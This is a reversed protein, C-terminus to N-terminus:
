EDDPLSNLLLLGKYARHTTGGIKKRDQEYGKAILARGLAPQLKPTHGGDKCWAEYSKYLTPVTVVGDPSKTACQELWQQVIDLEDRHKQTSDKVQVPTVLGKPSNYWRRAGEVAWALIGILNNPTVMRTKLGKDEEGLHSNPFRIVRLRGWFADDDVDGKIAHNSSLWIKFKPTFTFQDRHKFAATIPDNGTINKVVAENLQTYQGSESASIYRAARLPALDFNQSDGDRKATFTNFSVGRALPQGLLALMANESTGKGSRAKGHNYFAIEESTRGTISYGKAEQYWGGIKDYDEISSALFDLWPRSEAGAIYPIPVCYTFKNSAEHTILQGTRLDVVGNACNLVDPDSDFDSIRCVVLDRLMDVVANKRSSSPISSKWMGDNDVTTAFTQRLRLTDTVTRKVDFEANEAEFHTGVNRMWGHTPAFTFKHPNLRLVVLAHGADDVPTVQLLDKTEPPIVKSIAQLQQTASSETGIGKEPVYDPAQEALQMLADATGGSAFWDSVDGKAPLGPLQLIKVRKAIGELACAVDIAHKFGPEDNDPLIYVTRGRLSESFQPLWEAGAGQANTTALFGEAILRDVDKEGEPVFVPQSIPSDWLLPLHYLVREVGDLDNIWGGGFKPRRQFFSKPERRVVQYQLVGDRDLYDYTAVIKSPPKDKSKPASGNLPFLDKTTLGVSALVKKTDCGAFCHILVKKDDSENISLSEKSDDHCPCHCKYSSGDRSGSYGFADLVRDIPRTSM